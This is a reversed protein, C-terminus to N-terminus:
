TGCCQYGKSISDMVLIVGTITKYLCKRNLLCGFMIHACMIPYCSVCFCVKIQVIIDIVYTGFYV